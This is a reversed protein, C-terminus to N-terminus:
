EKKKFEERMRRFREIDDFAGRRDSLMMDVATLVVSVALAGFMLFHIWNM